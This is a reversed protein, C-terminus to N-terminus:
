YQVVTIPEVSNASSSPAQEAPADDDSTLRFIVPLMYKVRVNEGRQKGASWMGSSNLVVRKAEEFLADDPSRIQEVEVISGDAEIVFSLTVTGQINAMAAEKPYRLRMMVWNRFDSLNSSGEFTPMDEVRLYPTNESNATAGKQASAITEGEKLTMEIVKNNSKNVSVNLVKHMDISKFTEVDVDEGNILLHFSADFDIKETTVDEAITPEKLTIEIIGDYDQPDFTEWAKHDSLVAGKKIVTMSEIMDATITSINSTHEGNVYFLTRDRKTVYIDDKPEDSANEPEDSNITIEMNGEVKMKSSEIKEKLESIVEFREPNLAKFEEETVEEGDVFYVVSEEDSEIPYESLYSRRGGDESNIEVAMKGGSIVVATSQSQPESKEAVESTEIKNEAFYNTVKAETIAKTQKAFAPSAFLAISCIAVPIAYLCKAVAVRSSKKKLMMTIRNKLNSHNLSNSVSYLRSGVAKRILLLQYDKANVGASLVSEDACYEHVQQVARKTLWSAPNFWLIITVLNLLIVDYSHNQAVHSLEHIVIERGNSDLDKRSVVVYNLWSFPGLDRDHVIYRVNNGTNLIEQYERFKLLMEVDEEATSRWLHYRRTSVLLLLSCYSFLNYIFLLAVGVVYIFFITTIAVGLIDVEEAQPISEMVEFMTIDGLDFNSIPAVGQVVEPMVFLTASLPLVFSAFLVVLWLYRNLRHFTERGLLQKNFIYFLILLVSVELLYLGIAGITM